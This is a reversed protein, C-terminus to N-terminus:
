WPIQKIKLQVFHHIFQLWQHNLLKTPSPIKVFWFLEQFLNDRVESLVVGGGISRVVIHGFADIKFAATLVFDTHIGGQDVHQAQLIAFPPGEGVAQSGVGAIKFGANIVQKNVHVDNLILLDAVTM